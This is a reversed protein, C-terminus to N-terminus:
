PVVNITIYALYLTAQQNQAIAIETTQYVLGPASAIQVERVRVGPQASVIAAGLDFPSAAAGVIWGAEGSMQGTTFDIMAQLATTQLDSTNSGQSLTVTVAIQVLTPRDFLVGYIQGSIPETVSVSTSGNWGCGGSKEELLVMGIDADAGGQVCAWYSNRILSIGSNAGLLLSGSAMYAHRTWAGAHALWLGNQAPAAQAVALVIQGDTLSSAWDGGGQTGLGTLAVNGTTSFAATPWPNIAAIPALQGTQSYALSTSDVTIQGPTGVGATTLCFTKGSLTAGGTVGVIMGQPVPYTNERFAFSTVGIVQALGSQIALASSTGQTALTANRYTRAPADNMQAVGLVAANPNNITEWGIVATSPSIHTLTNQACPVPGSSQAIYNVTTTGSLPITVAAASVFIDGATTTAQSNAPIVKGPTGTIVVGPVQTYSAAVRQVGLFAMIADLFVGGAENPNIQNAVAANNNAVASRAQAEQNILVGQPTDATVVLDAGYVTKWEAEVDALIVATDTLIVGTADIYQYPTTSM